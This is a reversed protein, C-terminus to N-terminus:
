GKYSARAAKLAESLQMGKHKKMFARVHTLWRNPRKTGTRKSTKRKTSTRKPM